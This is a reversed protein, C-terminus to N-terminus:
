LLSGYFQSEVQEEYSGFEKAEIEIELIDFECNECYWIETYADFTLDIELYTEQCNDCSMFGSYKNETCM